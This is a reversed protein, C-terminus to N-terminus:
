GEVVPTRGSGAKFLYEALCMWVFRPAFLLYRRWLRRPESLLRHLWELGNDRMWPPARRVRGTHFDFAAGVGILISSDLQTVHERMWLEQKPCGLGVWVIDPRAAKIRAVTTAKEDATLPRFPPADFGAVVLGPYRDSLRAALREAVGDAGGYFYHRWGKSASRACVAAMLDAGCVRGIGSYGLWRGLWSLPQGDPAVMDAGRLSAMLAPNQQALMVNYVDPVCVYRTEGRDIWAAVRDVAGAINIISVPVELISIRDPFQEARM